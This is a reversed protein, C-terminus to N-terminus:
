QVTFKKTSVVNNVFLIKALYSGKDLNTLPINLENGNIEKAYRIKGNMDTVMIRKIPVKSSFKLFDNPSSSKPKNAKAASCKLENLKEWIQNNIKIENEINASSKKASLRIWVLRRSPVMNIANGENGIIAYMDKPAAKNILGKNLTPSQSTLYGDPNNLWTFYGFSPNFSQSPSTMQEFFDPNNLIKNGNWNGKNLLLLGFKAMSRANSSFRVKQNDKTFSGSLGISARLRDFLYKNITQKTAKELVKVLLPFNASHYLWERGPTNDLNMCGLSICESNRSEKSLGSTMNLLNILRISSKAGDSGSAWNNGLYTSIQDNVSLLDESDAIGALFGALSQSATGWSRSSDRKFSGFYKEIVIKGDILLIFAKTNDQALFNFLSHIKEQCFNHSSPTSTDWYKGDFSPYNLSQSNAILGLGFLLTFLLCFRKVIM